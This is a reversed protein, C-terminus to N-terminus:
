PPEVRNMMRARERSLTHVVWNRPQGTQDSAEQIANLLCNGLGLDLKRANRAHPAAAVEHLERFRSIPSGAAAEAPLPPAERLSGADTEVAILRGPDKWVRFVWGKFWFYPRLNGQPDSYVVAARFDASSDASSGERSGMPFVLVLDM